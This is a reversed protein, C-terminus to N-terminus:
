AHPPMCSRFIMHNCRLKCARKCPQNGGVWRSLAQLARTTHPACFCAECAGNGCAFVCCLGATKGDCLAVQPAPRPPRTALPFCLCVKAATYRSKRPMAPCKSSSAVLRSRTTTTSACCREIESNRQKTSNEETTIKSNEDCLFGVFVLLVLLKPLVKGAQCRPLCLRRGQQVRRYLVTQLSHLGDCSHITRQLVVESDRVLNQQSMM